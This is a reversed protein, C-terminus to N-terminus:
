KFTLIYGLGKMEKVSNDLAARFENASIKPPMSDKMAATKAHPTKMVWCVKMESAKGSPFLGKELVFHNTVKIKARGAQAMFSDQLKKDNTTILNESVVIQWGMKRYKELFDLGRQWKKNAESPITNHTASFAIAPPIDHLALAGTALAQPQHYSCSFITKANQITKGFGKRMQNYIEKADPVVGLREFFINLFTEIHGDDKRGFPTTFDIVGLYKRSQLLISRYWDYSTIRNEIETIKNLYDTFISSAMVDTTQAAKAELSKWHTQYAQSAFDIVFLSLAFRTAGLFTKVVENPFHDKALGSADKVFALASILKVKEPLGKLADNEIKSMLARYNDFWNGTVNKLSRKVDDETVRFSKNAM